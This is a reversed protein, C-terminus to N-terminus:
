EAWPVTCASCHAGCLGRELFSDLFTPVQSCQGRLPLRETLARHFSSLHQLLVMGPLQSTPFLLQGPLHEGGCGLAKGSYPSRESLHLYHALPGHSIEPCPGFTLSLSLPCAQETETHRSGLHTINMGKALLLATKSGNQGLLSNLLGNGPPAM